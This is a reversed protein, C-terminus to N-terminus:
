KNHVADKLIAKKRETDSVLQKYAEDDPNSPRHALVKNLREFEEKYRKTEKNFYTDSFRAWIYEVATASPHMMDDAYFRYDRLEDMMIEYAPFYHCHLPFMGCLEDVALLLISKSLENGHLGDKKHRIPSVTFIIKKGAPIVSKRIYAAYAEVIDEVTLRERSFLKDPQKKCNAVIHRTSNLRFVWSTGFTLILLDANIDDNQKIPIESYPLQTWRYFEDDRHDLANLISVPNYLAGFPNVTCDFGADVMRAGINDTFCSGLMVIKDTHRILLGNNGTEVKTILEMIKM